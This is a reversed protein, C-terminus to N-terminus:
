MAWRWGWRSGWGHIRGDGQRKETTKGLSPIMLLSQLAEVPGLHFGIVAGPLAQQGAARIDHSGQRESEWVLRRHHIEAATRSGVQFVEAFGVLTQGAEMEHVEASGEQLLGALAAFTLAPPVETGM